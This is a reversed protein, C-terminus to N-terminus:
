ANVPNILLSGDSKIFWIITDTNDNRSITRTFNGFIYSATSIDSTITGGYEFIAGSINNSNLQNSFNVLTKGIKNYNFISNSFYMSGIESAREIINGNITTSGNINNNQINSQTSITNFAINATDNIYNNYISSYNLLVNEIIHPSSDSGSMGLYNGGISSNLELKNDSIYSHSSLTNYLLQSDNLNNNCITSGDMVNNYGFYSNYLYLANVMSSSDLSNYEVTSKDLTFNQFSSTSLLNNNIISGNQMVINSFNAGNTLINNNISGNTLIDIGSFSSSTITNNSFNAISLNMEGCEVSNIENSNFNSFKSAIGYLACNIFENSNMNSENLDADDMSMNYMLNYNFNSAYLNFSYYESNKSKNNNIESQSECTCDSIQSYVLINNNIQSYFLKSNTIYSSYSLTNGSIASNDLTCLTIYSTTLYNYSVISNNLVNDSFTVDEFLFNSTFYSRNILKNRSIEFGLNNICNLWSNFVTNSKVNIGGWQFDKIPHSNNDINTFYQLDDYNCYVENFKDKRSIIINNQYDYIIEDATEYYFDTNTKDILSWDASLTYNDIASGINGSVNTWVNGGYVITSGETYTFFPANLPSDLSEQYESSYGTLQTTTTWNVTSGSVWQIMGESIYIGTCGTDTLITEGEIFNSWGNGSLQTSILNTWVGNCPTMMPYIPNYFIGKGSSSITNNTIAQLFISTGGYLNPDADTINYIVNPILSSSNINTLFSAYSMSIVTFSSGTSGQLGQYGTIGMSGMPGSSGQFGIYGQPGRTGNSGPSGAFGRPGQAGSIGALGAPGQSGTFGQINLPNGSGDYLIGNIAQVLSKYTDSIKKGRLSNSM